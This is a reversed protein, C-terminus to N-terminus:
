CYGNFMMGSYASSAYPSVYNHGPNKYAVVIRDVYDMPNLSVQDSKSLLSKSFDKMYGFTSSIDESDLAAQQLLDKDINMTGDEALNIGVSELSNRYTSAIGAMERVLLRSKSQSEVYNSAAKIFENYGGILDRVSDTLSELDPKLGIQITDDEESIGKLTIEYTKGITFHNSNATREEGNITFRANSANKSIYNLGFYDVTGSNKSTHEDGILFIFSRGPALGSNDSVLRLATRDDSQAISAKLGVGSNNILKSLREQVELNTESGSISFQFEYNMDNIAVDFSYNGEALGIKTNPLFLGLNEQPSALSKVSLELNPVEASPNPDGIYTATAVNENTTYANKKNLLGKDELGGLQAITNHLERANEKLHVAYAQTEKNTTPLYWPSEKNMKVISNYVGRLESKKHADYRSLTKPTYTTLYNNYVSNLIASGM